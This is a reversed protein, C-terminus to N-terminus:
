FKKNSSIKNYFEEFNNKSHIKNSFISEDEIKQIFKNSSNSKVSNIGISKITEPINKINKENENRLYLNITSDPNKNLLTMLKSNPPITFEKKKNNISDYLNQIKNVIRKSSHPICENKNENSIIILNDCTTDDINTKNGTKSSLDSKNIEIPKLFSPADRKSKNSDLIEINKNFLNPYNKNFNSSNNNNIIISNTYIHNNNSINHNNSQNHNNCIIQNHSSKLKMRLNEIENETRSFFDFISEENSLKSKNMQKEEKVSLLEESTEKTDSNKESHCLIKHHQQQKINHLKNTMNNNKSIQGISQQDRAKTKDKMLDNDITSKITNSVKTTFSQKNDNLSLSRENKAIKMREITEWKKEFDSSLTFKANSNTHHYSMDNNIDLYNLEIGSINEDYYFNKNSPTKNCFGIKIENNNLVINDNCM